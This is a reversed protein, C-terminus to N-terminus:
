KLKGADDKVLKFNEGKYVRVPNGRELSNHREWATKKQNAVADDHMQKFIAQMKELADKRNLYQTREKTSETVIGTPVHTLRVGTEVKNVNQGGHGGSHFYDIRIDDSDLTIDDVDPIVAVDVFWNKRKHHPRYPSECTWQVTGTLPMLNHLTKFLVSTYDGDHWRSPTRRIVDVDGDLEQTLADLLLAVARECEVPGTGSSLQVLM